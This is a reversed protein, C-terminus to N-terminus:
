VPHVTVGATAVPAAFWAVKQKEYPIVVLLVIGVLLSGCIVLWIWNRKIWLM